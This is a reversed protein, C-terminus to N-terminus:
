PQAQSTSSATSIMKDYDSLLMWVCGRYTKLRGNITASVSTKKYGNRDAEGLSKYRAIVMGDKIQVVPKMTDEHRNFFVTTDVHRPHGRKTFPHALRYKRQIERTLPNRMNEQHTCWRLNTVRNDTGINNIHDIEKYNNPNPIFAEAVLRHISANVRRVSHLSAFAYTKGRQKKFCLAMLLPEKRKDSILRGFSSVYYKDFGIVPRWEEGDYSIYKIFETLSM